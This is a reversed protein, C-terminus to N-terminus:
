IIIPEWRKDSSHLICYRTIVPRRRDSSPQLINVPLTNCKSKGDNCHRWLSCSPTQFWWDWSQKSLLKNPHLYFFCWLEADSAKTHPIWWHRTFEGCLPGTVRFINGNSPRLVECTATTNKVSITCAMKTITGTVNNCYRWM